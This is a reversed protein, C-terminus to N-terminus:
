IKLLKAHKAYIKTGFSLGQDTSESFSGPHQNQGLISHTIVKLLILFKFKFFLEKSLSKLPWTLIKFGTKRLDRSDFHCLKLAQQFSLKM